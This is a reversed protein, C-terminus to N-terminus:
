FPTDNDLFKAKPPRGVRKKIKEPVINVINVPEIVKTPPRGVKKKIKVIPEINVINVLEVLVPEKFQFCM